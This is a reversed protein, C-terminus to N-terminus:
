EADGVFVAVMSVGDHEYQVEVPAGSVFHDRLHSIPENDGFVLGAPAVFQMREGDPTLLTFGNTEALDGEIAVVVGTVSNDVQAGDGDSTCAAIAILATAILLMRTINM